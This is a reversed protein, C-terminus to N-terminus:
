RFLLTRPEEFMGFSSDPQDPGQVSEPRSGFGDLFERGMKPAMTYM